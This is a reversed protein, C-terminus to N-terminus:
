ISQDYTGQELPPHAAHPSISQVKCNTSTCKVELNEEPNSCVQGQLGASLIAAARQNDTVEVHEDACKVEM